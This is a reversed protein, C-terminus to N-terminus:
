KKRTLILLKGDNLGVMVHHEPETLIVSQVPSETRYRHVISLDSMRRVVIKGPVSGTVLM